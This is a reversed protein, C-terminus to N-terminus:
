LFSCLVWFFKQSSPWSYLTIITLIAHFLSYSREIIYFLISSFIIHTIVMLANAIDFFQAADNITCGTFSAILSGLYYVPIGPHHWSIAGVGQSWECSNYFYDNQIDNGMEIWYEKDSITVLSYITVIILFPVIIYFPHDKKFEM